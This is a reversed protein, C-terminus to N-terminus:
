VTAGSSLIRAPTIPLDRFRRGTAHWVANGIAAATGTIGIEGIGKGGGPWLHPDDEDIWTADIDQVDACTAIHYQALDTGVFGGASADVATEEMLAMGLGMTMAGIFQSRALVPEIIRGAAFVGLLRPVRVEGTREDVLVSAFQAGFSHRAFGSDGAVDSTTDASGHQGDKLMDECALAVASGWSATGMSGGALFADPLASDGLEVRVRDPAVGLTNAAIRALATRAGTGIDAAGIRVLFEDDSVRDATAASPRRRAPYTSAAVGSGELWHGRRRVGPRPDRDGWGFLRAGERLCDALHRSSFPLGSDPEASPDNRIRLEVPDMGLEVALEDMASELAYMGPAEGPARMWSPAPVNLRALRHTTRMAQTGYMIRTCAATQEAFETRIATHEIVDHAVAKLMGSADAGLELHQITPTRHGTLTFMQQRTLAVKVPRRAARAALAALIAHPRTTGKSGFGGGVHPAIVRVQGPDLGLVDAITNRDASPGQTSDWVTLGGGEDWAAIAAHPEMPNNHQVPTTYTVSVRAAAAALGAAVDGYGTDTPLAPNIKEPRYLGPHDARLTVDHPAPEYGVRVAGAAERATELREAIVLAVLQGRYTVKSGRFPTLEFSGTNGYTGPDATGFVAIVGPIALADTTDIGTITGSAVSSQVPYAYALEPHPYEAAYRARGTVKDPGEVRTAAAPSPFVATV